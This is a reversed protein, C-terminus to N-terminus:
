EDLLPFSREVRLPVYFNARSTVTVFNLIGNNKHDTIAPHEGRLWWGNMADRTQEFHSLKRQLSLFHVGAHGGDVTNFDRRLILPQGGNRARVVKELHGVVGSQRAREAVGSGLDGLSEGDTLAEVDDPSLAPSFMRAVRGADDLADYWRDLSQRLHSLHMTTGGAFRGSDITVRDESAQTRKMGSFFGMFMPVDASLPPDDPIGEADAHEAPLGDGIFGTRRAVVSFVDGLRDEVAVDGLRDRGDFMAAEVATLDSQVDSALVLAADHSLLEPDDTRSLVKPRRIPARDLTGLREFYDTGWALTHLLGDPSWEFSREIARMAREVTRAAEPAPGDDLELLLIRHYHPALHNGHDDTRLVTNWAHQREPLDTPNPDLGLRSSQRNTGLLRSCGPLGVAGLLGAAHRLASRRSVM